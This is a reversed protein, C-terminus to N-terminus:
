SRDTHGSSCATSSYHQLYQSKVLTTFSM